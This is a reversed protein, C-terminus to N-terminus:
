VGLPRGAPRDSPVGSQAVARVTHPVGVAAVDVVTVTVTSSPSLLMAVPSESVTVNMTVTGCAEARMAPVVGVGSVSVLRCPAVTRTSSDPVTNAARMAGDLKWSTAVGGIAPRDMAEAVRALSVSADSSRRKSRVFKSVCAVSRTRTSAAACRKPPSWSVPATATAGAM